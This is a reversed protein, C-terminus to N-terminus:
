SGGTACPRSPSQGCQPPIASLPDGVLNCTTLDWIRVTHDATVAVVRGDPLVATSVATVLSTHGTLPDGVPTGTALDWLRVTTDYSGTVAVVQGDPLVATAVAAVEGTHGTLPGGIPAGTALDWMWVTTDYSGTVAVVRGDDLTATAVCSVTVSAAVIESDDASRTVLSCPFWWPRRTPAPLPPRHRRGM